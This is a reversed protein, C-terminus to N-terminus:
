VRTIDTDKNDAVGIPFPYNGIGRKQLEIQADSLQQRITDILQKQTEIVNDKDVLQSRLDAVQDKLVRITEDKDSPKDGALLLQAHRLSEDAMKDMNERRKQIIDYDPNDKRDKIEAYESLPVNESLMYDSLWLMYNINLKGKSADVLRQMIDESARKVGRKYASILSSNSEIMKALKEQTVNLKKSLYKFAALFRQNWQKREEIKEDEGM